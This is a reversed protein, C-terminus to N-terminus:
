RHRSSPDALTQPRRHVMHPFRVEIILEPPLQMVRSLDELHLKSDQVDDSAQPQQAGPGEHKGTPQLRSLSRCLSPEAM